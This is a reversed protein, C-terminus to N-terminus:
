PCGATFAGVFANIDALDLFSDGNLDGLPSGSSFLSVFTNIDSLDLVGFPSALDAVSCPLTRAFVRNRGSIIECPYGLIAVNAFNGVIIENPSVVLDYETGRPPLPVGQAFALNLTGDVATGGLSVVSNHGDETILGRLSSAPGSQLSDVVLERSQSQPTPSPLIQGNNFLPARIEGFGSLAGTNTFSGNPIEVIGRQLEFDGANSIGNANDSRLFGPDIDFSRRVFIRGGPGNTIGGSVVFGDLGFVNLLGNNTLNMVFGGPVLTPPILRLEGNNTFQGLLRNNFILPGSLVGDGDSYRFEGENIVESIRADLSSGDGFSFRAGEGILLQQSQILGDQVRFESSTSASERVDILGAILTGGSMSLDANFAPDGGVRFEDADVVGATFLMDGDGLAGINFSGANLGGGNM